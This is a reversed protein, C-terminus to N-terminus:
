LKSTLEGLDAFPWGTTDCVWQELAFLMDCYWLFNEFKPLDFQWGQHQIVVGLEHEGDATVLPPSIEVSTSGMSNIFKIVHQPNEQGCRYLLEQAQEIAQSRVEERLQDIQDALSSMYNSPEFEIM